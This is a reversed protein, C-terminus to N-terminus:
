ILGIHGMFFKLTLAAFSGQIVLSAMSAMLSLSRNIFSPFLVLSSCSQSTALSSLFLTPLSSSSNCASKRLVCCVTCLFSGLFNKCVMDDMIGPLFIEESVMQRIIIIQYLHLDM